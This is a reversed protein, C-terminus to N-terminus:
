LVRMKEDTRFKKVRNVCVALSMDSSVCVILIIINLNVKGDSYGAGQTPANQVGNTEFNSLFKSLLQEETM